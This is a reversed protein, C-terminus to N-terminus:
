RALCSLTAHWLRCGSVALITTTPNLLKKRLPFLVEATDEGALLLGVGREGCHVDANAVTGVVGTTSCEGVGREGGRNVVCPISEGGLERCCEGLRREGDVGMPLVLLPAVM